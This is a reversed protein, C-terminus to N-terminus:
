QSSDKQSQRQDRMKKMNDMFADLKTIQDDSLTAKLKQKRDDELAKLQTKKDADSANSDMKISRAKLQYDQQVVAVADAQDDTLKLEDKLRQKMRQKMEPSTGGRHLGGSGAEQAFSASLSAIIILSTLFAKKM